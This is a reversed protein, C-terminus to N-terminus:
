RMGCASWSAQRPLLADTGLAASFKELDEVTSYMAGAAFAWNEHMDADNM